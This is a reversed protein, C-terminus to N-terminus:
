DSGNSLDTDSSGIDTEGASFLEVGSSLIQDSPRTNPEKGPELKNKRQKLRSMAEVKKSGWNRIWNSKKV